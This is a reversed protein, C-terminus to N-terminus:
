KILGWEALKEFSGEYNDKIYKKVVYVM